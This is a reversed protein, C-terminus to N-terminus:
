GAAAGGADKSEEMRASRSRYYTVGAAWVDQSEVPALIGASEFDTWPEGLEVVSALLGHLDESTVLQDWSYGTVRHVRGDQEVCPGLTTRYLRM